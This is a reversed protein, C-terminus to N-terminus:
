LNIWQSGTWLSAKQNEGAWSSFNCCILVWYHLWNFCELFNLVNTFFLQKTFIKQDDGSLLLPLVSLIFGHCGDSKYFGGLSPLSNSFRAKQVHWVLCCVPAAWTPVCEQTRVLSGWPSRLQLAYASPWMCACVYMYIYAPMVCVTPQLCSSAENQAICGSDGGQAPVLSLSPPERGAGQSSGKPCLWCCFSLPVIWPPLLPILQGQHCGYLVPTPPQGEQPLRFSVGRGTVELGGEARGSSWTSCLQAAAPAYPPSPTWLDRWCVSVKLCHPSRM